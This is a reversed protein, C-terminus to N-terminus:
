EHEGRIRYFALKIHNQPLSGSRKCFWQWLWTVRRKNGSFWVLSFFCLSLVLGYFISNFMQLFFFRFTSCWQIKHCRATYLVTFCCSYFETGTIKTCRVGLFLWKLHTKPSTHTLKHTHTLKVFQSLNRLEKWNDPVWVTRISIVCEGAWVVAGPPRFLMRSEVSFEKLHTNVRCTHQSELSGRWGWGRQRRHTEMNKGHERQVHTLFAEKKKRRRRRICKCVDGLVKCFYLKQESTFPPTRSNYQFCANCPSSPKM